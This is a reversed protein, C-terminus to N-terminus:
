AWRGLGTEDKGMETVYQGYKEMIIICTGGQKKPTLNENENCAYSTKIEPTLDLLKRPSMKTMKWHLNTEAEGFCDM